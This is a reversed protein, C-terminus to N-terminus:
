SSRREKPAFRSFRQKPTAPAPAAADAEEGLPADRLWLGAGFVFFVFSFMAHWVHVTCITFTLGVITFVWALRLAALGEDGDLNRLMVAFLGWLYGAALLLFGPIGYRVTVVLWFNDMSGSYMWRPREWDNLGLGFLPNAWVNNMAHEFILMRWYATHASFTAYSLFVEIPTRNSSLDVAVYLLAFLGVLIWWRHKVEALAIAWALLGLQLAIALLAGSSLALFGTACVVGGFLWRRLDPMQGRLGVLCLPVAVSCYLGFHIPHVFTGQARNLGLRPGIPHDKPATTGPIRDLWDLLLAQATLAEYIAFPAFLLVTVMLARCLAIFAQRTRICVRAVLYGGSLELGVAGAQEVARDPNNIFLAVAAWAVHALFLVDIGTVKGAKGSLLRVLLPILLLLVVARLSTLAVPGLKVTLPLLVAALYALVFPQPLHGPPLPNPPQTM